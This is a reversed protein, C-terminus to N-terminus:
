GLNAVRPWRTGGVEATAVEATDAPAREVVVGCPLRARLVEGAGGISACVDPEVMARAGVEARATLGDVERPTSQAHARAASVDNGGSAPTTRSTARRPPAASAAMNVSFLVGSSGISDHCLSILLREAGGLRQHVSTLHLLWDRTSTM